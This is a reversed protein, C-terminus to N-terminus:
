SHQDLVRKAHKIRDDDIYKEILDVKKDTDTDISVFALMHPPQSCTLLLCPLIWNSWEGGEQYHHTVVALIATVTFGFYM